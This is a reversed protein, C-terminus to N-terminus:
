FFFRFFPLFNSSLLFDSEARGLGREWRLMGRSRELTCWRGPRRPSADTLRLRRGAGPVLVMGSRTLGAKGLRPLSAPAPTGGRGPAPARLTRGARNQVSPESLGNLIGAALSPPSEVHASALSDPPLSGLRLRRGRRTWGGGRGMGSGSFSVCVFFKQWVILINANGGM